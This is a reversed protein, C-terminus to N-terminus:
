LKIGKYKNLKSLYPLNVRVINEREGSVRSAFYRQMFQYAKDPSIGADSLYQDIEAFHLEAEGASYGENLAMFLGSRNAAPSDVFDAARFERIRIVPFETTPEIGDPMRNVQYENGDEGIEVPKGLFVISAGFQTPAEEAMSMMYEVVDTSFAPSKRASDLFKIDGLLRTEDTNKRFNRFQGLQKATGDESFGPHGLRSKIGNPKSNGLRVLQDVTKIDGMVGHGSAEVGAQFVSVGRIIGNDRDVKVDEEYSLTSASRFRM